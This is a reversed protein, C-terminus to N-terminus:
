RKGIRFIRDIYGQESKAQRVLMVLLAILLIASLVAMQFATTANLFAGTHVPAPLLVDNAGTLADSNVLIITSYLIQAISLALLIRYQKGKRLLAIQSVTLLPLIIGWLLLVTVSASWGYPVHIFVRSYPWLGALFVLGFREALGNTLPFLRTPPSKLLLITSLICSVASVITLLPYFRWSVYERTVSGHAILTLIIDGWFLVAFGSIFTLVSLVASLNRRLKREYRQSVLLLYGPTVMSCLIFGPHLWALNGSDLADSVTTLLGTFLLLFVTTCLAIRRSVLDPVASEDWTCRLLAWVTLYLMIVLTLLTIQPTFESYMHVTFILDPDMFVPKVSLNLATLVGVAFACLMISHRTRSARATSLCGILVLPFAIGILASASSLYLVRDLITDTYYMILWVCTLVASALFSALLLSPRLSKKSM